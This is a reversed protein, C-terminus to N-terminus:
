REVRLFLLVHEWNWGVMQRVAAVVVARPGSQTANTEDKNNQPSGCITTFQNRIINVKWRAHSVKPSRINKASEGYLSQKVSQALVEGRLLMRKTSIKESSCGYNRPHHRRVSGYKKGSAM